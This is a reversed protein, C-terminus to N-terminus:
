GGVHIRDVRPAIQCTVEYSITGLTRAWDDADWTQEGSRGLLVVEDGPQHSSGPGLDVMSQDMCVRGVVPLAAGDILVTGRNSFLRNFGDAYGAPFTGIVTDEPATWTGGYGIPTGAAVQKVFSLRTAVTMAPRLAITRPTTADPYYGYSMIGPRVMDYRAGPHGLIGGSNSAHVLEVRRGIRDQIAAVVADFRALQDRTFARGSEADSIPLHTFIGQLDLHASAEVAAALEPAREVDVGVRGMGTDVKLHVTALSGSERCVQELARVAHPSAVTLTLRHDVADRLEDDFAPSLKLIPLTIGARRLQIGEPVTAVGLWDAVGSAEIMRAVAVAGHGYANAKVAALVLVGPGVADRVGQLNDRIAGLDVFARTPSTM